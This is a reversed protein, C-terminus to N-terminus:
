KARAPGPATKMRAIFGHTRGSADDYFGVLTDTAIGTVQTTGPAAAPYDVTTFKKAALDYLFGHSGVADFFHGVVSGGSIGTVCTGLNSGQGAAPHNLPTYATGDYIFGYYGASGDEYYGVIKGGEIGCAFTGKFGPTGPGKVATRYDLRVFTKAALNCAFGHADYNEERFYGTISGEASLGTLYNGQVAEPHNLTTFQKTRLNYLFGEEDEADTERYGVINDGSIGNAFCGMNALHGAAPDTLTTLSRAALNYVFAHAVYQPDRWYGVINGGAIGNAYTGLAGPADLTQFDFGASQAGASAVFGPFAPLLVGFLLAFAPCARHPTM